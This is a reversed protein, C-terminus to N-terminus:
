PNVEVRKFGSVVFVFDLLGATASPAVQAYQYLGSADQEVKEVYGIRVGKPFGDRGGSLGSTVVEDGVKIEVDKNIFDIRAMPLGRANSGEGRLLGFANAREIKASVRFSPDSVLLVDASHASVSVTKGVLGDPSIVAQNEEIGDARGKGIRVVSWWGSINRSIVECAIMKTSQQRRFALARRLRLNEEELNRLQNLESRLRVLQYSLERNKEVTGGTGRLASFAESFRRVLGASGREAPAFGDRVVGKGKMLFSPPFAFAALLVLITAVV